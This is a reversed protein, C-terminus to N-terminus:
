RAELRTVTLVGTSSRSISHFEHGTDTLLIEQYPAAALSNKFVALRLYFGQVEEVTPRYGENLRELLEFVDLNVELQATVRDNEYLLNLGDPMQELFRSPSDINRVVLRFKTSDFVRYNRVTGKEVERVSLGLDGSLVDPEFLKEGRNIARILKPLAKSAAESDSVLRLLEDASRYPLMARWVSDRREFYHLRRIMALYNQHQGFPTTSTKSTLDRPLKMFEADLLGRIYTSRKEPQVLLGDAQPELFDMGRDRQPDSALSVDIQRLLALLRDPSGQSGGFVSNFYFGDLIEQRNGEKAYLEHLDLCERTGVLMFALASRLDRLTIHLLGRLHTLTFLTKLRERVQPGAVPDQLTVANFRAYCKDRLDCDECPQWLSPDVMKMLTRDFISGTQGDGDSVVSRLNLNVVAVGQEPESLRLGREVIRALIPFRTKNQTLFDVLKGENIAILRTENEAWNKTDIGEYPAFFNLLVQENPTDGEDQSGDYNVEYRRGDLQFQSGNLGPPDFLAGRRRAGSELQQLFATKGDGANGSIIILRFEGSLVSATLVRDLATDVYTLRAVDDLGRTGSNSRKSQSYVTLLHSVYPNTNPEIPGKTIVPFVKVKYPEPAPAVRVRDIRALAAGFEDVSRFRDQRHPATAKVLIDSLAPNLDALGSISRPDTSPQGLLPSGANGWPYHGTIAEYLTVGLAFLDRDRLSDPTAPVVPDFDPAIYRRSGGGQGSTEEIRAAVNFDIIRVGEASWLLNRPKIDLHCVNNRHLHSLGDVIQRGMRLAEEASLRRNDLLNQVDLGEVYEFLLFPTGDPLQRAALAQVVHPHRPLRVLIGYEQKLRDVKSHRDRTILKLVRTVDGYTDIVKYAVGFAGPKGLREQVQYVNDLLTGPQLDTYDIAEASTTTKSESVDLLTELSTLAEQATPRKQWDFDCLKQLWEDFGGPLDHRVKLGGASPPAKFQAGRDVLETPSDFPKEGTMLEFIVLGAAFGDSAATVDAMDAICEPALYTRDLVEAAQSAMTVSRDSGVRAFEFGTLRSRGDKGILITTPSVARHIVQNAHCHALAQLLERTVAMKQDFTLALAPKELHLRLSSAAVDETVLVFRDEGETAFFHRAGLINPHSPLRNLAAYATQIRKKQNAREAEPLYPDARYIRLRVKGSKIGASDNYGRWEAYYDTESLKGELVYDGLRNSTSKPKAKGKILARVLGLHPRINHLRHKPIRTGDQFFAQSDKLRCVDGAELGTTDILNADAASLIIAAGFHIRDLEPRGRNSDLLMGRLSKAHQRLKPLPSAFPSRGEPHWSSGYVTVTGRTGKVDVLWVAHPALIALDIEYKQGEREIEFNHYIEYSIPLKDRLWHIAQREDENEPQGIAIVTAM